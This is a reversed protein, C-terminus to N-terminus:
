TPLLLKSEDSKNQKKLAPVKKKKLGCHLVNVSMVRESGPREGFHGLLGFLHPILNFATMRPYVPLHIHSVGRANPAAPLSPFSAREGPQPPLSPGAPAAHPPDAGLCPLSRPTVSDWGCLPQAAGLCM